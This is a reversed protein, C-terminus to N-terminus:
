DLCVEKQHQDWLQDFQSMKEPTVGMDALMAGWKNTASFDKIVVGGVDFYFFSIM